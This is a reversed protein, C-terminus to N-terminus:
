PPKDHRAAASAMGKSASESAARVFAPQAATSRCWSSRHRQLPQAKPGSCPRLRREKGANGPLSNSCIQRAVFSAAAAPDAAPAQHASSRADKRGACSPCAQGHTKRHTTSSVFAKSGSRTTMVPSMRSFSRHRGHIPGVSPRRFARWPLYKMRPLWSFRSFSTAAAAASRQHVRPQDIQASPAAFNRSEPSRVDQKRSGLQRPKARGSPGAGSTSHVSYETRTDRPPEM